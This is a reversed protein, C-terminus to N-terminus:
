FPHSPYMGSLTQPLLPPVPTHSSVCKTQKSIHVLYIVKVKQMSAKKHEPSTTTQTPSLESTPREHHDSTELSSDMPSCVYGSDQGIDEREEGM